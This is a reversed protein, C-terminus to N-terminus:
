RADGKTIDEPKWGWAIGAVEEDHDLQLARVGAETPFSVRRGVLSSIFERAPSGHTFILINGEPFDELLARMVLACRHKMEQEFEIQGIKDGHAGPLYRRDSACVEHYLNNLGVIWHTLSPAESYARPDFWEHLGADVIINVDLLRASYVATEVARILPSSFIHDIVVGSARIYKALEQAQIHGRASLPSDHPRPSRAKWNKDESDLRAGHRAVLVYRSM